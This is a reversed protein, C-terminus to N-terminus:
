DSAPPAPSIRLRIKHETLSYPSARLKRSVKDLTRSFCQLSLRRSLSLAAVLVTHLSWSRMEGNLARVLKNLHNKANAADLQRQLDAQSTPIVSSISATAAGLTSSSQPTVPNHADDKAAAPKDAPTSMPGQAVSRAPTAAASTPSSYAPPSDDHLGNTAAAAAAGGSAGGDAPLFNM